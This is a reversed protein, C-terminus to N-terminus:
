RTSPGILMSFSKLKNEYLVALPLAAATALDKSTSANREFKLFLDSQAERKDNGKRYVARLM